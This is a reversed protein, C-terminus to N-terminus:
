EPFCILETFKADIGACIQRAIEKEGYAYFRWAGGIKCISKYKEEKTDGCWLFVADKKYNNKSVAISGVGLYCAEKEISANLEQCLRGIKKFDNNFIQVWYATIEFYCSSRFESPVITNCPFNYNNPDIKRLTTKAVGPSFVVPYNYEMFVGATCGFLPDPQFTLKCVELAEVLNQHGLSILIGHGIGHQCGTANGPYETICIEDLDKVVGVGQDAMAKIFFSHYCGFAFSEDCVALGNLGEKEYLLEGMIHAVNHQTDFDAFAYETKFKSYAKQSGLNDVNESWINRDEEYSFKIANDYEGVDTKTNAKFFELSIFLTSVVLILFFVLIIKKDHLNKM